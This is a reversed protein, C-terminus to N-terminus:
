CFSPHYFSLSRTHVCDLFAEVDDRALTRVEILACLILNIQQVAGDASDYEHPGEYDMAQKRIRISVGLLNAFVKEHQQLISFAMSTRNGYHMQKFIECVYDLYQCPSQGLMATAMEKKVAELNDPTTPRVPDDNFDVDSSPPLDSAVAANGAHPERDESSSHDGNLEGFTPTNRRRSAKDHNHDIRLLNLHAM